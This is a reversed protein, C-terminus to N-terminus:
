NLTEQKKMFRSLARLCPREILYYSVSAIAITGPITILFRPAIAMDYIKYPLYTNAFRGDLFLFFHWLYIGYSITGVWVFLRSSFIKTMRSTGSDLCFPLVFCIATIGYLFLGFLIVSLHSSKFSVSWGIQTSWFWAAGSALFFVPSIRVLSSHLNTLHPFVQVAVTFTAACMGLAFTDFHAPLWMSNYTLFGIPVQHLFIRFAFASVYLVFICVLINCVVVKPKKNKTFFRMLLAIWPLSLYFFLEISLTWTPGIIPFLEQNGLPPLLLVNRILESFPPREISNIKSLLILACLYAPMIRVFRKLYFSGMKPFPTDQLIAQVYPKFLLYGSLVFFISVAVDLRGSFEGLGNQNNKIQGSQGFIHFVVILLTALARVGDLSKNRDDLEM